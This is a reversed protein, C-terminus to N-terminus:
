LFNLSNESFALVVEAKGIKWERIINDQWETENEFDFIGQNHIDLGFLIIFKNVMLELERYLYGVRRRYFVM